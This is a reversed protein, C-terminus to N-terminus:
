HSIIKGDKTPPSFWNVFKEFEQESDFSFVIEISGLPPLELADDIIRLKKAFAAQKDFYIKTSTGNWNSQLRKRAADIIKTEHIIQRVLNIADRNAYSATIELVEDDDITVVDSKGLLNELAKGIKKIDETPNVPCIILVEM